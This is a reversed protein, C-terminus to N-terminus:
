ASTTGVRRSDPRPVLRVPLGEDRKPEAAPDTQAPPDAGARPPAELTAEASARSPTATGSAEPVFDDVEALEVSVVRSVGRVAMTIGYLLECASMTGKNHTVIIFQTDVRFTDLLSLFRGINADDLAADVEDLVCFPSPRSRFVAFLLAIATLARQGGSLLSIPLPERGPPRAVIEIGAELVAAGEALAIDARGGGFLQRFITHFHGRIQEFAELFLRESEANITALTRELTRRANQLDDRQTTLFGLRESVGGLEEVADLNVPGLKDMQAKLEGVSEALADLAAEGREGSLADEPRFGEFLEYPMLGFDEQARRQVEDRALEQKQRELRLESVEGMLEELEHTAGESQRRLEDIAARGARERARMETVLAELEGRRELLGGRSEALNEAQEAGAAASSRCERTLRRARELESTLEACALELDVLRRADAELKEVLRTSEVRVHSEAHTQREREGELERRREEAARLKENQEAFSREADVLKARTEGLEDLLRAEDAAIGERENEVLQRAEELDVLRARAAELGASAETEARRERELEEDLAEIEVRRREREEGVGALEGERRALEADIRGAETELEAAHSRRGIPGQAVERHGGVIGGAEVLDGEPTVFRLAPYEGVLVLACEVDRVLVVDGLLLDGLAAFGDSAEVLDRLRGEVGDREFLKGSLPPSGAVPGFGGPTVLRVQGAKREKLWCVINRADASESVVLAQARDGLVADLARAARASTRLHDAFLGALKGALEPGSGDDLGALVERAGSELLEREHERDLLSEARAKLRAREVELEARERRLREATGDLEGVEREFVSRRELAVRLAAGAR